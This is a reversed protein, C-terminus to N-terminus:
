DNSVNKLWDISKNIAEERVERKSLFLDHMGNKIEILTVKSGLKPGYLKMDKVNLVLDKTLIDDRWKNTQLSKDSHLVLIPITLNLGKQLIRQAQHVAYAWAYHVINTGQKVSIFFNWEGKYSAHLSQIYLNGIEHDALFDYSFPFIKSMLNSMVPLIKKLFPPLPFEFFPSNLIMSNIKNRKEGKQMYMSTILGGTSHGMLSIKGYGKKELIAIAHTIEEFYEEINRCYFYHQHTLKSNGYKRLELAYFDVGSQNFKEAVHDHFYYDCFGHIHIIAHNSSKETTEILTAIVKGEYDDKCPIVIINNQIPKM